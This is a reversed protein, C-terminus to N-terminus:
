AHHEKFHAYTRAIGQALTTKPQWGFAEQADVALLKQKMGTPRSLDHTFTGQWGIVKAANSYFENITYDYGLGINMFGPLDEFRQVAAWIGDALDGAFMFERRATGDGWIEVSAAGAEKAEHLKRIIAPLLHSVKPDFKDHLGYLNCPMLTKYSLQANEESVFACLRAVALKALGYGENTPELEGKGLSSEHLPNPADRPYMCSSGLNLLQTVGAAQAALVINVGMDMNDTLFGAKNAMNAQIGGVRGATHIVLDPKEAAIAAMVAARDTLDLEASTPAIIQHDSAAPDNRVARGVMGRGGTLFIKM